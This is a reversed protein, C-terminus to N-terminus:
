SLIRNLPAFPKCGRKFDEAHDPHIVVAVEAILPHNKFADISWCLVPKGMLPAYQKPVSGGFREGAGAAVILAAIKSNKNEMYNINNEM